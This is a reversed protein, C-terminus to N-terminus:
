QPGKKRSSPKKPEPAPDNRIISIQGDAELFARRVEKINEIGQERLHGMLEEETIMEKQLNQRRLRGSRIVEVAPAEIWKQLKPFRFALWDLAHSWFILTACLVAGGTVSKYENAMGNQAADAILVLLLLDTIGLSGVHRKGLFRLVLFLGLYMLTGRIVLELLSEQPVFMKEWDVDM